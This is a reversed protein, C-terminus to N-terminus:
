KGRKFLFWLGGGLLLVAGVAGAILAWKPLGVTFDGTGSRLTNGDQSGRQVGPASSKGGGGLLGGAIDAVASLGFM